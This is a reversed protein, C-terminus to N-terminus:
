GCGDKLQPSLIPMWIQTAPQQTGNDTYQLANPPGTEMQPGSPGCSAPAKRILQNRHKGPRSRPVVGPSWNLWWQHTIQNGPAAGSQDNPRAQAAGRGHRRGDRPSAFPLSQIIANPLSPTNHIGTRKRTVGNHSLHRPGGGAPSGGSCTDRGGKGMDGHSRQPLNRRLPVRGCPSAPANRQTDHRPNQKCAMM